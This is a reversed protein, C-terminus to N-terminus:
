LATKNPLVIFDFRHSLYDFGTKIGPKGTESPKETQKSLM